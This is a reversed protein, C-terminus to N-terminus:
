HFTAGHNQTATDKGITRSVSTVIADRPMQNVFHESYFRRVAERGLGGVMSPVNYVYPDPAMTATTADVNRDVFEKAIHEDFLFDLGRDGRHNESHKTTRRLRNIKVM